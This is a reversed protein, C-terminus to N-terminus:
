QLRDSPKFTAGAASWGEDASSLYLAIALHSAEDLGVSSNLIARLRPVFRTVKWDYLDKAVYGALEPHQELLFGYADVIATRVEVRGDKGQVSLASVIELLEAGSRGPAVFYESALVNVADAGAMEIFATAYAGLNITIGYKAAAELKRRVFALDDDRDSMGLILIYLGHWEVHFFDRIVRYIDDRGVTARLDRITAYPARAVELFALEALARDQHRLYPAFFVAREHLTKLGASWGAVARMVAQHESGAPGLRRWTGNRRDQALAVRLAPQLRLERSMTSDVLLPIADGDYHGKLTEVPAYYFPRAPNERAFVVTASEVIYDASTKKPYPLCLVCAHAAPVWLAFVVAITAALLASVAKVLGHRSMSRLQDGKIM